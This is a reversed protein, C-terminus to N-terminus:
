KEGLFILNCTMGGVIYAGLLEQMQTHEDKAPVAAAEAAAAKSPAPAEAADPLPHSLAPPASMAWACATWPTARPSCPQSCPPLHLLPPLLIPNPLVQPVSSGGSGTAKFPRAAAGGRRRRPGERRAAQCRQFARPAGFPQLGALLM